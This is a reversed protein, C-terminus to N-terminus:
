LRAPLCKVVVSAPALGPATAKVTFAGAKSGAQVIVMCRGNFAHRRSAKDAEHSSPDGNGVGIIRALGSVSFSVLNDATPVVRGRADLVDVAIISVDEGDALVSKRDPRLRIAAPAGTTGVIDKTVLTGGNFGRAEIQGPAYPVQWDLHEYRPMQKTGLSRGNLFLEVTDCNSFVRVDIERGEQGPWNWHPMLHVVPKSGWWSLYYWYNDKPFGCTDMIGFHSNICPWDYPTPEGRYDFGTWVFSGAMFPRTAIAKWSWDTANYEKVYGRERDDTYEGRTVLTSATESGYMPIDPFQSHFGDYQNDNYNCGQLDEVMSIGNSGWGGNMACSVPRTVDLSHVVKKMASFMRAGEPTGQRGEENCMSWIVISPHNRDRRVMSEVQGLIEPSDGLKRNEDMVLMGLRDCADLLEPAYPHHSCRYGNSGMAKLKEIKYVHVRDPLAVGIGAFDQHNCTGKIKVPKGNLFFGNDKNFRITRIGFPTDYEDVARSGQYVTTHVRYLNPSELSWLRVKPLTIRHVTDRVASAPLTQTTSLSAVARGRPDIIRSEVRCAARHLDDNQITSRVVVIADPRAATESGRVKSIVFTGWHAVHVPATKLLWVHRYIGGGEYWWGENHRADVRVVLTNSAGARAVKTIDYAFSTYGSLHKGILAGNLWASSDRYVGDFELSLRRGRDSAPLTFNKVYWGIGSDKYGHSRDGKPNFPQEVVFDHPLGVPKWGPGSANVGRLAATKEPITELATRGYIGGQGANNEVHVAIENPAGPKWAAGVPVDFPEDWIEHHILKTGNLYVTANDDVSDFHLRLRNAPVKISSGDIVARFWAFGAQGNFVDTGSQVSKWDSATPDTDLIWQWDSIAAVEKGAAQYGALDGAHFWWGADFRQRQRTSAGANAVSIAAMLIFAAVLRRTM